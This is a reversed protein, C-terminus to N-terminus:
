QDHARSHASGSGDGVCVIVSLLSVWPHTLSSFKWQVKLPVGFCVLEEGPPAPPKMNQIKDIIVDDSKDGEGDQPLQHYYHPPLPFATVLDSM